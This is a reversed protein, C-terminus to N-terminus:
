GGSSSGSSTITDMRDPIYNGRLESVPTSAGGRLQRVVRENERKQVYVPMITKICLLPEVKAADTAIAPLNEPPMKSERSPGELLYWADRGSYQAKRVNFERLCCGIHDGTRGPEEGRRREGAECYMSQAGENTARRM